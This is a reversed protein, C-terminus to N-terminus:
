ILELKNLNTKQKEDRLLFRLTLYILLFSILVIVGGWFWYPLVLYQSMVYTDSSFVAGNVSGGASFLYDINMYLSAFAQVGLLRLTNQQWSDNAKLAIFFLIIAFLLIMAVGFWSRVWLIVSLAFFVSLLLNILRARKASSSILIMLTGAITPGLPGAAAVIANSISGFHLPGSFKALGSGNEFIELSHFSGGMLMAALGHGMEHFWTALITFPYLITRGFDFQWAIASLVAIGYIILVPLQNKSKAQSQM